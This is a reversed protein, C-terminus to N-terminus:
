GRRTSAVAMVALLTLASLCVAGAAAMSVTHDRAYGGLDPLLALAVIATAVVLAALAVALGLAATKETAAGV